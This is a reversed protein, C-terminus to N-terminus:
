RKISVNTDVYDVPLNFMAGNNAMAKALEISQLVEDKTIGGIVVSGKDLVEPRETSTRILVAPFNLMASEESLTGSDSLVCFANQQLHNYAFFGFPKLVFHTCTLLHM